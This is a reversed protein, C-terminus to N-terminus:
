GTATKMLALLRTALLETGRAKLNSLTTNADGYGGVLLPLLLENNLKKEIYPDTETATALWDDGWESPRNRETVCLNHLLEAYANFLAPNREGLVIWALPLNSSDLKGTTNDLIRCCQDLTLAGRELMATLLHGASRLTKADQALLAVEVLSRGKHTDSLLSYCTESSILEEKYLQLLRDSLVRFVPRYESETQAYLKALTGSPCILRLEFNEPLQKAASTRDSSKYWDLFDRISDLHVGVTEAYGRTIATTMGCWNSHWRLAQLVKYCSAADATGDQYRMALWTRLSEVGDTLGYLMFVYSINEIGKDAFQLNIDPREGEARSDPDVFMLAPASPDVFYTTLLKPHLLSTFRWQRAGAGIGSLDKATERKHTLTLNTDMMIEVFQEEKDPKYRFVLVMAHNSTSAYFAKSIAQNAPASATKAAEKLAELQQMAWQGFLSNSVCHYARSSKVDKFFRANSDMSIKQQLDDASSIGFYGSEPTQSNAKAELRPLMYDAIHRCEISDTTGAFTAHGNLSRLDPMVRGPLVKYYSHGQLAHRRVQGDDFHRVCRLKTIRTSTLALDVDGQVHIEETYASVSGSVQQLGSWQLLDLRTGLFGQLTLQRLGKMRQCLTPLAVLNAPVTLSSVSALTAAPILPGLRDLVAPSFGSLDLSNPDQKLAALLQEMAHRVEPNAYATATDAFEALIGAADLMADDDVKQRKASPLEDAIDPDRGRKSGGSVGRM